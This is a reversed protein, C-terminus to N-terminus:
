ANKPSGAQRPKRTPRNALAAHLSAVLDAAESLAVDSRLWILASQLEDLAFARLRNDSFFWTFATLMARSVASDTLMAMRVAPMGPQQLTATLRSRQTASPQGGLTHILLKDFDGRALRELWLAFDEEPPASEGATCLVITDGRQAFAWNTWVVPQETAADPRSM